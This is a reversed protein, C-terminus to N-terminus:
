KTKCTDMKEGAIANAFLCSLLARSEVNKSFTWGTWLLLPESTARSKRAAAEEEKPAEPVVARIQLLFLENGILRPRIQIQILSPEKGPDRFRITLSPVEKGSSSKLKRKKSEIRDFTGQIAEHGSGSAPRFTNIAINASAHECLLKYFNKSDKVEREKGDEELIFATQSAKLFPKCLSLTTQQPKGLHLLVQERAADLKKNPKDASKAYSVRGSGGICTALTLAM